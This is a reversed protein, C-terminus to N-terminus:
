GDTFNVQRTECIPASVIFNVTPLPNVVTTRPLTDSICGKDTYIFLRVTFTGPNMYRHVPNRVTDISGDGFDWRWRTITSGLGDSMDTFRTTDNLCVEPTVNFNARPQPYITNITKVSDDVCGNNSTVTLKVNFPGTASYNHLPNALTSTIGDGFEWFYTFLSQTGDSITSVDNFQAAGVPLCVIPMNFNAVPKPHIVLQRSAVFSRCGSNTEV